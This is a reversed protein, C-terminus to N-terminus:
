CVVDVAYPGSGRSVMLVLSEKENLCEEIETLAYLRIRGLLREFRAISSSYLKVRCDSEEELFIRDDKVLQSSSLDQHAGSDLSPMTPRSSLMALNTDKKSRQWYLLRSVIHEYSQYMLKLVTLQRGLNHIQSVLNVDASIFMGQRLKELKTRYPHARQAILAYTTLWDDFLYYFLLSAAETAYSADESKKSREYFRVGVKMLADLASDRDHRKSLHKFVNLANRRAAAHALPHDVGPRQFVSVMTGDDCILLSSWIRIGSPKPSTNDDQDRELDPVTFLANFGVYIYHSGFDVSNFHWLDNVIDGFSIKGGFGTPTRHPQQPHQSDPATTTSTVGKEVDVGTLHAARGSKAAIGASSDDSGDTTTTTTSAASEFNRTPLEPPCLLGTLRPSLGYKTAIAKIAPRQNSSAWFNLWLTQNDPRNDKNLWSIVDAEDLDVACKAEAGDFRVGFNGTSPDKLKNYCEDYDSQKDLDHLAKTTSPVTTQQAM